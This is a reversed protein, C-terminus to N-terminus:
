QNTRKLEMQELDPRAEEQAEIRLRVERGSPDFALFYKRATALQASLVELYRRSKYIDPAADFAIREGQLKSVEGAARMELEWRGAQAQALAVAADGELGRLLQELRSNWYVTAFRAAAGNLLSAAKDGSGGGRVGAAGPGRDLQERLGAAVQEEAQKAADLAAQAEALGQEAERAAAQTTGAALEYSEKTEDYHRQAQDIRQEAELRATWPATLAAFREDRLEASDVQLRDLANLSVTLLDEAAQLRTIAAALALARDRDGAVQSLIENETVRARRIEAIKKQQANVVERFKQAVTNEPHVNQMSVHVIEVGLRADVSRKELRERLVQGVAEMLPGMLSDVHASANFKLAEEWAIDRLRRHAAEEQHERTFLSLQDARIRYQVLLQMRILHVPARAAGTGLAPASASPEAARTPSIIFDYHDRGSHKADTWLEVAPAFGGTSREVLPEDANKFGVWISHLQDTNFRRAVDIPVPYKFYIGPGYPNDVNLQRGFREVVVREYPQVIVVASLLWLALAGVGVLPFAVRQLLQYFWTQSVQFGFQYNIADAMSKAIGGPESVLGILRSDFAVRPEVEPLRPRYVDFILNLLTELGLLVMLGPIAYALAHEPTEVGRYLLMGLCIVVAMAGLAGALMHSGGARLMQWNAVRALGAAYRAYFFLLLMALSSLVLAIEPHVVRPWSETRQFRQAISLSWVGAGIMVLAALLSFTPLLWRRMWELRRQAVDFGGAGEGAFIGESGVAAKERRLEELDLSELAALESQRFVLLLAFWIVLGSSLYLGLSALASSHSYGALGLVGLLAVLNLILGYLAARRSRLHTTENM